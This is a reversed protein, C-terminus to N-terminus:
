ALELDFGHFAPHVALGHFAKVKLSRCLNKAEAAYNLTSNLSEFDGPQLFEM